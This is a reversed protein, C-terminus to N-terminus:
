FKVKGPLISWNLRYVPEDTSMNKFFYEMKNELNPKYVTIPSHIQSLSTM